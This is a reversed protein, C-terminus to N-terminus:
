AKRWRKLRWEYRFFPFARGLTSLLGHRDMWLGYDVYAPDDSLLREEVWARMLYIGCVGCWLLTLRLCEWVTDGSLFPMWVLLWGVCKVLYVPHKCFRYPGNTIIGRNSLNSARLGFSAEGWYHIVEFFLILLGLIGAASGGMVQTWPEAGSPTVGYFNLWSGFVGTMLPPYCSLTVAWGFWSAEVKRVETGLLRASFFYGPIIAAALLASLMLIVGYQVHPWSGSLAAGEAGRFMGLFTVFACFNLPLFFGRVLWALAGLRVSRWDVEHWQGLALMGIHWSYDKEPRVRWETLFIWVACIGPLWPLLCHMTDFLPQYGDRAYEPLLFWAFVTVAIGALVGLWKV